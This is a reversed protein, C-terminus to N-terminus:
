APNEEMWKPRLLAVTQFAFCIIKTAEEWGAKLQCQFLLLHNGTYMHIDTNRRSRFM